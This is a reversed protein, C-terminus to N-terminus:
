PPVNDLKYAPNLKNTDDWKILAPSVPEGAKANTYKYDTPFKLHNKPLDVMDYANSGLVQNILGKNVKADANKALQRIRRYTNEHFGDSAGFFAAMGYFDKQTWAAF